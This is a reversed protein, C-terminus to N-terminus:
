HQPPVCNVIIVPAGCGGAFCTTETYPGGCILTLGPGDDCQIYSQTCGANVSLPIAVFFM